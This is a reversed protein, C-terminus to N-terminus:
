VYVYVKSKGEVRMAPQPNPLNSNLVTGATAIPDGDDILKLELGTKPDEYFPISASSEFVLTDIGGVSDGTAPTAQGGGGTAPNGTFSYVTYVPGADGSKDQLVIDKDTLDVGSKNVVYFRWKSEARQLSLQFKKEALPPTPSPYKIKLVGSVEMRSLEDHVFVQLTTLDANTAANKVELTYYGQGAKSLDFFKTFDGQTSGAPITYPGAVAAGTTADYEAVVATGAENKITVKVAAISAADTYRFSFKQGFIAHLVKYKLVTAMGDNYFYMRCGNSFKVTSPAKEDM